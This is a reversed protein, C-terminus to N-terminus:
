AFLVRDLVRLSPNTKQSHSCSSHTHTHGAGMRGCKWLCAPPGGAKGLRLIGAQAASRLSHTLALPVQRPSPTAEARAKRERCSTSKMSKMLAKWPMMPNTQDLKKLEGYLYMQWM